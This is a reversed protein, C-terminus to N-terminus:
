HSFCMSTRYSIGVLPVVELSSEPGNSTYELLTHLNKVGVVKLWDRVAPTTYEAETDSNLANSPRNKGGAPATM